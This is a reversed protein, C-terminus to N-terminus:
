LWVWCRLMYAHRFTSGSLGAACCGRGKFFRERALGGGEVCVSM